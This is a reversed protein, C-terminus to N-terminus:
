CHDSHVSRKCRSETFAALVGAAISRRWDDDLQTESRRLVSRMFQAGSLACVLLQLLPCFSLSLFSAHKCHILFPLTPNLTGGFVDYTM